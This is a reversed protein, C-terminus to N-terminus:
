YTKLNELIIPNQVVPVDTLKKVCCDLALSTIEGMLGLSINDSDRPPNLEVIELIIPTIQSLLTKVILKADQFSVGGSVPTATASAFSPDIVDIDFSIHATSFGQSKLYQVADQAVKQAGFEKIESPSRTWIGFEKLVLQEAPDIDRVGIYCLGNIPFKKLNEGRLTDLFGANKRYAAGLPMGHVNGSTSSSPTHIDTHADIWIIGVDPHGSAEIFRMLGTLTGLSLSHDGGFVVPIRKNKLSEEIKQACSEIFGSYAEILDQSNNKYLNRHYCDSIWTNKSDIGLYSSLVEPGTEAGAETGGFSVPALLFDFIEWGKKM